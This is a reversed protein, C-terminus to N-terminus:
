LRESPEQEMTRLEEAVGEGIIRQVEMRDDNSLEKWHKLVGELEGEIVGEIVADFAKM